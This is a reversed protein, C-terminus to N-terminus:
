QVKDIQIVFNDDCFIIEEYKNKEGFADEESWPVAIYENSGDKFIIDIHTINHYHKLHSMFSSTKNDTEQAEYAIEFFTKNSLAKNDISMFLNKCNQLKSFEGNGNFSCLRKTIGGVSFYRIDKAEISVTDCNEFVVDIKKYKKM